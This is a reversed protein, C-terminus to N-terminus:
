AARNRSWRAEVRERMVKAAADYSEGASFEEEGETWVIDKRAHGDRVTGAGWASMLVAADEPDHVAAKYEGAANYIKYRPAAAM